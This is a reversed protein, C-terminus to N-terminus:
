SLASSKIVNISRTPTIRDCCLKRKRRIGPSLAKKEKKHHSFCNITTCEEIKSLSSFDLCLAARSLMSQTHPPLEM